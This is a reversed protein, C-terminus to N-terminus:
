VVHPTLVQAACQLRLPLATQRLLARPVAAATADITSGALSVTFSMAPPGCFSSHVRVDRLVEWELSSSGSAHEDGHWARFAPVVWLHHSGNGLLTFFRLPPVGRPLVEVSVRDVKISLDGYLYLEWKVSRCKGDVQVPFFYNDACIEDNSSFWHNLMCVCGVVGPVPFLQLFIGTMPMVRDWVSDYAGDPSFGGGCSMAVCVRESPLCLEYITHKTDLYPSSGFGVGGFGSPPVGRPLVVSTDRDVKIIKDGYLFVEWQECLGKGKLKFRFYFYIDACIEDNCRHFSCMGCLLSMSWMDFLSVPVHRQRHRRRARGPLSSTRPTRRKRRKKRKRKSSSSAKNFREEMAKKDALHQAWWPDRKALELDAKDQAEKMKRAQEREKEEEEKKKLKLEARLLFKVATDDVGDAGRLSSVALLPAGAAVYGGTVAAGQPGAVESPPAPRTGPPLTKPGRPAYYTESGAEERARARTQGRSAHHTYEALAMAVSQREHKLWSRLRRQRRRRAAGEGDVEGGAM